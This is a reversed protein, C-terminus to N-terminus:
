VDCGGWGNLGVVIRGAFWHMKTVIQAKQFVGWVIFEFTITAGREHYLM